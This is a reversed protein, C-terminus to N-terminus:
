RDILDLGIKVCDIGVLRETEVQSKSSTDQESKFDMGFRHAGSDATAEKASVFGDDAARRSANPECYGAFVIFVYNFPKRM